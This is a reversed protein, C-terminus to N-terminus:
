NKIESFSRGYLTIAKEVATERPTYTEENHNLMTNFSLKEM